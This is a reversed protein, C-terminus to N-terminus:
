FCCPVLRSFYVTNRGWQFYFKKSPSNSIKVQQPALSSLSQSLVEAPDPSGKCYMQNQCSVQLCCDPDMCDALSDSVCGCCTRSVFSLQVCFSCRQQLCLFLHHPSSVFYHNILFHFFLRSSEYLLYILYKKQDDSFLSALAWCLPHNCLFAM